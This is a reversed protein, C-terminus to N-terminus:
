TNKDRSLYFAKKIENGDEDEETWLLEIKNGTANITAVYSRPRVGGAAKAEQEALVQQQEWRNLLEEVDHEMGAKPTVRSRDLEFKYALQLETHLTDDHLKWTGNAVFKYDLVGDYIPHGLHNISTQSYTHDSFYEIFNYENDTSALIWRGIIEQEKVNRGTRHINKVYEELEEDAIGMNFKCVNSIHQLEDAFQNLQMQRGVSYNLYYRVEKSTITERLLQQIHSSGDANNLQHQYLVQSGIPQRWQPSSNIYNYIEHRTTYFEQVEDIFSPNDFNKWSDQSSLFVRESSEDFSYLNEDSSAALYNFVKWLTNEELSDIEALRAIVDQAMDCYKKEDKAKNRLIEVNNDMDHIVMMATQRATAKKSIEELYHATGFTLIISITTAIISLLIEKFTGKFRSDGWLKPMRFKINM